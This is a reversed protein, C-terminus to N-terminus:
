EGQPLTATVIEEGYKTDRTGLTVPLKQVLARQCASATWPDITTVINTAHGDPTPATAVEFRMFGGRVPYRYVATVFGTYTPM